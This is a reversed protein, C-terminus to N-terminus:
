EEAKADATENQSEAPSVPFEVRARAVALGDVALVTFTIQDQYVVEDGVNPVRGLEAMILGGVTEVDPLAEEEGLPIDDGLDDLLYTGAVELIGPAREIFPEAEVDFEDRVEGVVEELLDELTVIGATGGFEDLVVAMHVRQRKFTSLMKEVPYHEPVVPLPRALLRLDFNGKTRVQYRVLDKIHLHGIIDDLEEEYVPFRSHRSDAIQELLQPLPTNVSIAEIKPRPTMVQHVERERFDFINLIIEEENESLLGGEVSDSVIRELEDPSSLRDRVPVPPIRFLQLLLDSVRNLLAVPFGFVTQMLQMPRSIVFVATTPAVLALSKPIMEGCVIHLYTLLSVALLYGLGTVFASHLELGSLHALYPEIFSAIQPEFMGLGLSAITIGLQATAFYRNQKDTSRLTNLITAALRNGENAEHEIQTPRVGILAFEAAVFLGNLIILIIIAVAPFALASLAPLEVQTAWGTLYFLPISGGGLFLAFKSM